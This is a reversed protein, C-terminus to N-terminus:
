IASRMSRVSVSRVALKLIRAAKVLHFDARRTATLAATCHESLERLHQALADLRAPGPGVEQALEPGEHQDFPESPAVPQAPM